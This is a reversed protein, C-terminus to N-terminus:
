LLYLCGEYNLNCLSLMGLTQIWSTHLYRVNRIFRAMNEKFSVM